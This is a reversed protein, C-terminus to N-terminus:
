KMEEKGILMAIAPPFMLWFGSAPMLIVGLLTILLLTIGISRPFQLSDNEEVKVCLVGIIFLAFGFFLFWVAVGALESTVTNFIGNRILELYTSGFMVVAFATHLAAIGIIWKGVWNKM